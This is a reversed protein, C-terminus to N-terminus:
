NSVGRSQRTSHSMAGQVQEGSGKCMDMQQDEEEAGRGVGPQTPCRNTTVYKVCCRRGTTQRFRSWIQDGTPGTDLVAQCVASKPVQTGDESDVSCEQTGLFRPDLSPNVQPPCSALCPLCGIFPKYCAQPFPTSVGLTM